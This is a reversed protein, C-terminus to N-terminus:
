QRERGTSEVVRSLARGVALVSEDTIPSLVADIEEDSLGAARARREFEVRDLDSTAGAAGDAGPVARADIHARVRRAVIQLADDPRRTRVLTSGVADVYAARPPPLPRSTDEPPGLRHGRAWMLVLGAIGLGILAIKWDNPIAALGRSPGYGHVGEPFVVTRGPEGALALGLAANDVTALLHNQLPSPDAVFVITGRGVSGETVLADTAGGVLAHTAGIGVFHGSGAGVVTGIPALSPDIQSWRTPGPSEWQPPDDSLATFYRPSTGGIVLRGGNVLFALLVDADDRSITDPDLVVLTTSPDLTGSRLPGRTREVAHGERGLLEAYAALGDAQTGYASSRRGGPTGGGTSDSVFRALLNLGIVAGVVVIVIRAGLPLSRWRGEPPKGSIDLEAATSMPPAGRRPRAAM